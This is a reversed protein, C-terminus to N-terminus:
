TSLGTQITSRPLEVTTEPTTMTVHCDVGSCLLLPLCDSNLRGACDVEPTMELLSANSRRECQRFAAPVCPSSTGTTVTNLFANHIANRVMKRGVLM